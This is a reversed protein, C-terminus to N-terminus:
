LRDGRFCVSRDASLWAMRDKGEIAGTWFCKCSLGAHLIKQGQMGSLNEVQVTEMVSHLEIQNITISNCHNGPILGQIREPEQEALEVFGQM